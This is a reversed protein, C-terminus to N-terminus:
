QYPALTEVLPVHSLIMRRCCYRTVGLDNLKKIVPELRDKHYVSILASNIKKLKNM